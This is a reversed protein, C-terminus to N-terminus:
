QNFIRSLAKDTNLFNSLIISYMNIAAEYVVIHRIGNLPGQPQLINPTSHPNAKVPIKNVAIQVLTGFVIVVLM